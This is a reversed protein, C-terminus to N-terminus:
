PTMTRPPGSTLFSGDVAEALADAHGLHRALAVVTPGSGTMMAGLAGAAMFADITDGIEPHRRVAPAQLDNSLAHGTLEDNGSEVAAVLAGPDPGTEAGDDDWWGYADAARIQFAFPRVVWQTTQAHAAHVRDGRGACFVPEGRLLAPVDSGADAAIAALRDDDIGCSWLERLALLTAAADASGGGLGAAVPVHKEIAILAGHRHGATCADALARAATSALSEGGASALEAARPGHIEVEIADARRAEVVDHLELPLILTEIDHFGDPRRGLVRLFVNIKAHARRRITTV